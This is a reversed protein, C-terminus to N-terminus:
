TARGAFNLFRTQADADPASEIADAFGGPVRIAGDIALLREHAIEIADPNLSESQETARALDWTHCLTDISLLGAVIQAFTQDGTRGSVVVKSLEPDTAARRIAATADRFAAVVDDGIEDPSPGSEGCLGFVRRHTAVVHTVLGTVDWDPCPTPLSWQDAGVNDLASGFGDAIVIYPLDRTTVTVSECV